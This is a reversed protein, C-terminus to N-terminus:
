ADLVADDTELPSLLTDIISISFILLGLFVFFQPIFLPIAIIGFSQDGFEYAELTLLAMYYTMYCATLAAITLVLRDVYKKVNPSFTDRVLLVRIHGDHKFTYALAMFSSAALFYGSFDAYSPITLAVSTGFIKTILNAVVQASVLLCIAFILIAALAGSVNYLGNLHRRM